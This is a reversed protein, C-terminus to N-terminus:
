SREKRNPTTFQVVGSLVATSRPANSLKSFESFYKQLDAPTADLTTTSCPRHHPRHQARHLPWPHPSISVSILGGNHLPAGPLWPSLRCCCLSSLSPSPQSHHPTTLIVVTHLTSQHPNHRLTNHHFSNPRNNFTYDIQTCQSSFQQHVEGCTRQHCHNAIIPPGAGFAPAYLTVEGGHFKKMKCIEAGSLSVVAIDSSVMVRPVCRVM